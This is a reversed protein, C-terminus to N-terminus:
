QCRGGGCHREQQPGSLAQPVFFGGWLSQLGESFGFTPASGRGKGDRPQRNLAHEERRTTCYRMLAERRNQDAASQMLQEQLAPPLSNFYQKAEMDMKSPEPM